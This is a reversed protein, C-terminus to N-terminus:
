KAHAPAKTAAAPKITAAYRLPSTKIAAILPLVAASASLCSIKEHHSWYTLVTAKKGRDHL